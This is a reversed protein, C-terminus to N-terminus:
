CAILISFMINTHTNPQNISSNLVLVSLYKINVVQKRLLTRSVKDEVILLLLVLLIPAPV